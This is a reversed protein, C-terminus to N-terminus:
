LRYRPSLRSPVHVPSSRHSPIKPCLAPHTLLPESPTKPPLLTLVQFTSRCRARLWSLHSWITLHPWRTPIDSQGPHCDSRSHVRAQGAPAGRFTVHSGPRRQGQVTHPCQLTSGPLRHPDSCFVAAASLPDTVNIPGTHWRESDEPPTTHAQVGHPAGVASCRCPTGDAEVYCQLSRAGPAKPAAAAGGGEPFSGGCSSGQPAEQHGPRARKRPQKRAARKRPAQVGRGKARGRDLPPRAGGM